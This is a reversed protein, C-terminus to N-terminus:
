RHALKVLRECTYMRCVCLYTMSLCLSLDILCCMISIMVQLPWSSSRNHRSNLNSSSSSRLSVLGQQALAKTPSHSYVALAQAQSLLGSFAELLRARVLLQCVPLPFAVQVVQRVLLLFHQALGVPSRSSNSSSSTPTSCGELLLLLLVLAQQQHHHELPLLSSHHALAAEPTSASLRPARSSSSNSSALPLLPLQVLHLLAAARVLAELDLAALPRHAKLHALAQLVRRRALDLSAAAPELPLPLRLSVGLRTQLPPVLPQLIKHPASAAAGLPLLPHALPLHRGLHLHAAKALPLLQAALPQLQVGLAQHALPLRPPPVLPQPLAKVLPQRAPQGLGQHPLALHSHLSRGLVEQLNVLARAAQQQLAQTAKSM